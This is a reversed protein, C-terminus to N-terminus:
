FQGSTCDVKGQERDDEAGEIPFRLAREGGAILGVMEPKRLHASM